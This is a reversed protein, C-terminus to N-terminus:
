AFHTKLNTKCRDTLKESMTIKASERRNGLLIARKKPPPQKGTATCGMHPHGSEIIGDV